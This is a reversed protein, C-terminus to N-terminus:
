PTYVIGTGLCALRRLATLIDSHSSSPRRKPRNSFTSDVPCARESNIIRERSIIHSSLVTGESLVPVALVNAKKKNYESLTQNGILLHFLLYWSIFAPIRFKQRYDDKSGFDRIDEPYLLFMPFDGHWELVKPPSQIHEKAAGVEERMGFIHENMWSEQWNHISSHEYAYSIVHLM